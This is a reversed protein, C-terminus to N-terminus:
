AGVAELVSRPVLVGETMIQKVTAVAVAVREETTGDLRQFNMGFGDLVQRLANDVRAAHRKAADAEEGPVEIAPALPLYFAFKVGMHELLFTLTSLTAQLQQMRVQTDPTVLGSQQLGLMVMEFNAGAHAINGLATGNVIYSAGDRRAEAERAQSIGWALLHERYGGFMGVADGLAEVELGPNGIQQLAERGLFEDEAWAAAFGEVFPAKGSGPAGVVAVSVPFEPVVLVPDDGGQEPQEPEEGGPVVGALEAHAEGTHTVPDRVEGTEPDLVKGTPVFVETGDFTKRMEGTVAYDAQPQGGEGEFRELDEASM